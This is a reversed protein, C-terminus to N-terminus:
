GERGYRIGLGGGMGINLRDGSGLWDLPIGFGAGLGGGKGLWDAAGLGRRGERRLGEENWVLGLASDSPGVLLWSALDSSVRRVLSNAVKCRQDGYCTHGTKPRALVGLFRQAGRACKQGGFHGLVQESKGSTQEAVTCCGRQPWSRRFWAWGNKTPNRATSPASDRTGRRALGEAGQWSAWVGSRQGAEHWM